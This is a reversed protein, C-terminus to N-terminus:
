SIEKLRGTVLAAIRELATEDEQDFAGVQNSDIDIQGIIQDDRRLLVVIESRTELSCALYNDIECVDEVIVNEQNLWASGCVGRGKPIRVHDTPKGQYYELALEDGDVLYIGTWDFHPLLSLSDVVLSYIDQPSSTTKIKATIDSLVKALHDKKTESM